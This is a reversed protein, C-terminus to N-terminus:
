MTIEYRVPRVYWGKAIRRAREKDARRKHKREEWLLRNVIRDCEAKSMGKFDIYAETEQQYIRRRLEDEQMYMKALVIGYVCVAAIAALFDVAILNAIFDAASM